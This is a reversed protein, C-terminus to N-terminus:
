MLVKQFLQKGSDFYRSKLPLCRYSKSVPKASKYEIRKKCAVSYLSCLSLLFDGINNANQGRHNIMALPKEGNQTYFGMQM